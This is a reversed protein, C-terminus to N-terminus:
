SARCLPCLQAHHHRRKLAREDTRTYGPWLAAVEFTLGALHCARTFHSGGSRAHVTIRAGLCRAFGLYHRPPASPRSMLPETYHLLYCGPGQLEALTITRTSKAKM